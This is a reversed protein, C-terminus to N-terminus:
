QNQNPKSTTGGGTGNEPHTHNNYTSRMNAMNKTGGQDSVNGSAQIDGSTSTINETVELNGIVKVDGTIDTQPCILNTKETVTIDAIGIVNIAVGQQVNITGHGTVTLTENGNVHTTRNGVKDITVETEQHRLNYRPWDSPHWERIDNGAIPLTGIIIPDGPNGSLFQIVVLDNDELDHYLGNSSNSKISMVPVDFLLPMNEYVYVNCLVQRKGVTTRISGPVVQGRYIGYLRDNPSFVWSQANFTM